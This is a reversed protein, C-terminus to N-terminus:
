VVLTLMAISLHVERPIKLMLTPQVSVFERIQSDEEFYLVEGINLKKKEIM